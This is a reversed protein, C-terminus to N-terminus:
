KSKGMNQVITRMHTQVNTRVRGPNQGLLHSVLLDLTHQASYGYASGVEAIAKHVEGDLRIQKKDTAM